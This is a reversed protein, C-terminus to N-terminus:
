EGCSFIHNEWSGYAEFTKMYLWGLQPLLYSNIGVVFDVNRYQLFTDPSHRNGWLGGFYVPKSACGYFRDWTNM